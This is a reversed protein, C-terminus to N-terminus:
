DVRLGGRLNLKVLHGQNYRIFRSFRLSVVSHRYSYCCSILDDAAFWGNYRIARCSIQAIM